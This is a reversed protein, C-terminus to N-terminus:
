LCFPFCIFLSVSGASGGLPVCHGGEAVAPRRQYPVLWSRTSRAFRGLEIAAIADAYKAIAKEDNVGLFTIRAAVDSKQRVDKLGQAARFSDGDQIRFGRVIKDTARKLHLVQRLILRRLLAPLFQSSAL